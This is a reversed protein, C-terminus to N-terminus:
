DIKIDEFFDKYYARAKKLMVVVKDTDSLDKKDLTVKTSFYREYSAQKARKLFGSLKLVWEGPLVHAKGLKTKDAFYVVSVYPVFEPLKRMFDDEFADADINAIDLALYSSHKKIIEVINGFRYKPIPLAFFSADEPNIISFKIKPNEEKYKSLNDLLFRYAKMNFFTPANLTVTDAWTAECLAIAQNMEKHTPSNSVQIIRVPVEHKKVLKKVYSTNWADFSKWLALDIGDYGAEKCVEFILDLGYSPLSDTSLLFENKVKKNSM